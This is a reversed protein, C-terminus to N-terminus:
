GTKLWRDEGYIEKTKEEDGWYCLMNCFGRVCLEGTVGFPAIRGKDDVVKAELHDLLFGVTNTTKEEDDGPMSQFIM